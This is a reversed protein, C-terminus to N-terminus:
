GEGETERVTRLAEDATECDRTGPLRVEKGRDEVLWWELTAIDRVLTGGGQALTEVRRQRILALDAESANLTREGFPLMM